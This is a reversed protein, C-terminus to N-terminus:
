KVAFEIRRNKERNEKSDNKILPQIEGKSDTSIRNPSIGKTILYEKAIDARKQGKRQNISKYGINCTHGTLLVNIDSYQNLTNAINDLILKQPQSLGTEDFSYGNLEAKDITEIAVRREEVAKQQRLLEAQREAEQKIRLTEANTDVLDTAEKLSTWYQEEWEKETIGQEEFAYNSYQQKVFEAHKAPNYTVNGRSDIDYAAYLNPDSELDKDIQKLRRSVQLKDATSVVASMVIALQATKDGKQDVFQQTADLNSVLIQKIPNKNSSLDKETRSQYDDIYNGVEVAAKSYGGSANNWANARRLDQGYIRDVDEQIMADVESQNIAWGQNQMKQFSERQGREYNEARVTANNSQQTKVENYIQTGAKFLDGLWKQASASESYLMTLGIILLLIKTKM